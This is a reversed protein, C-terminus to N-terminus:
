VPTPLQPALSSWEESGLIFVVLLGALAEFVGDTVFDSARQFQYTEVGLSDLQQETVTTISAM